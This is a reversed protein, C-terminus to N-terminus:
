QGENRMGTKDDGRMGQILRTAARPTEVVRALTYASVNSGSACINLKGPYVLVLSGPESNKSM